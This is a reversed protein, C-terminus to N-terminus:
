RNEYNKIASLLNALAEALKEAQEVTHLTGIEKKVVTHLAKAATETHTGRRKVIEKPEACLLEGTPYYGVLYGEGKYRADWHKMLADMVFGPFRAKLKPVCVRRFHQLAEYVDPNADKQKELDETLLPTKM